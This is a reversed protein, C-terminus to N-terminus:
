SDSQLRKTITSSIMCQRYIFWQKAKSQQVTREKIKKIDRNSLSELRNKYEEKNEVEQIIVSMPTPARRKFCYERFQYIKPFKM